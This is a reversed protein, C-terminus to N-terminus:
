HTAIRMGEAIKKRFRHFQIIPLACVASCSNTRQRRFFTNHEYIALHTIYCFALKSNHYLIPFPIQKSPSTSPHVAEPRNYKKEKQTYTFADFCRTHMSLYLYLVFVCLM